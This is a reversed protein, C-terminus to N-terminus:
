SARRANQATEANAHAVAGIKSLDAGSFATAEAGPTVGEALCTVPEEINTDRLRLIRGFISREARRM